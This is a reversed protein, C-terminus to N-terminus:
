KLYDLLSPQLAQATAKLSAQYTTQAMSFQSIAQAMDADKVLSLQGALSVQQTQQQQQMFQVRNTTAGIQSRTLNVADVATNFQTLSAQIAAQNNTQLGAQLQTFAQFVPDFTSQANANVALSVGPAVEIKIPQNNGQYAAPTTQSNASQVYGPQNSRTGSFIFYTGNKTQSVSLAQQQLQTVEAQMASLDSPSLTGNSAQVALENARSVAQTLGGLTSDTLNLWSAAQDMNTAYQTSADINQQLGIAQATGIPDDSPKSIRSGSSLQSQLGQLREQNLEINHLTTEMMMTSTIRM